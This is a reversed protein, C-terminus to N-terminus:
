VRQRLNSNNEIHQIATTAVEMKETTTTTPYTQSLQNLLQQIEKAAELLTQQQNINQTNGDGVQTSGNFTPKDFNYKSSEM